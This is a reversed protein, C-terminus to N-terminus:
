HFPDKQPNQLYVYYNIHVYKFWLALGIVKYAFDPFNVYLPNSIKDGM